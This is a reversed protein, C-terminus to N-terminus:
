AVGKEIRLGNQVEIGNGNRVIRFEANQIVFYRVEGLGPLDKLHRGATCPCFGLGWAGTSQCVAVVAFIRYMPLVVSLGPFMSSM